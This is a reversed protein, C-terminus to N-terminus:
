DHEVAYLRFHHAAYVLRLGSPLGTPETATRIVYVFDYTERWRRWYIRGSPAFVSATPPDMLESLPPPDDNYGGTVARYPPLVDIVQQTPNSFLVSVLSSREITMLCPLYYLWFGAPDNASDPQAVLITSGRPIFAASAEMDTTDVTMVRWAYEILTVRVSLLTVLVALFALRARPTPLRLDLFGILVFLFATPLRGDVESAGIIESPSVLFVAVALAAFVMGAAHVRLMRWAAAGLTLTIALGAVADPRRFLHQSEFAWEIGLLKSRVSWHLAEFADAHPGFARLSAVVAAAVLFPVLRAAQRRWSFGPITLALWLEYSAAATLYVGAAALHCLFLVATVAAAGGSRWIMPARAMLIWLAIGWLALGIGFVYNLLGGSVSESYLFLAAVCPGLSLRRFVAWQIAHPGTLMLALAGFVFAKGAGFLGLVGVLPPVLLDMALNPLVRWHVAYFRALVPDRGHDAIVHMRALHNVYDVLPPLPTLPTLLIPFAALLFLSVALAGAGRSVRVNWGRYLTADSM